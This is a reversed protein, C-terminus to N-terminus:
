LNNLRISMLKKILGAYKKDLYYCITQGKRHTKVFGQLELKRLQHSIASLSKKSYEAIDSVCIEKNKLLIKFIVLRTRDSLVKFLNILNQEYLLPM